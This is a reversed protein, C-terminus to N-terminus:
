MRDNERVRKSHRCHFSGLTAERTRRRWRQQTKRARSRQRRTATAISDKAGDNSRKGQQRRRWATLFAAAPPSTSHHHSTPSSPFSPLTESSLFLPIPNQHPSGPFSFSFLFDYGATGLGYGIKKEFFFNNPVYGSTGLAYGYRLRVRYPYKELFATGM